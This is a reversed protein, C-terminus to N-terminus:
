LLCVNLASSLPCTYCLLSTTSNIECRHMDGTIYQRDSLSSACTVSPPIFIAEVAQMGGCVSNVQKLQWDATVPCVCGGRGGARVGARLWRAHVHIRVCPEIM